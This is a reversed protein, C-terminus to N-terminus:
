VARARDTLEAIATPLDDASALPEAFGVRAPGRGRLTEVDLWLGYRDVGTCRVATLDPHGALQAGIERLADDDGFLGNVADAANPGLPDPEAAFFSDADASDMRGYGGVWRVRQVRLVRISFDGFGAYVSAAPIKAVYAARAEEEAAGEVLEAVGTLTVRGHALPDGGVDPQAIMLSARPDRRLNRGHEALTSVCLVPSGDALMAYAVMSAWPEGDESLTGLAGHASAAALTRAEEAASRERVPPLEVLPQPTAFTESPADHDYPRSAADLM